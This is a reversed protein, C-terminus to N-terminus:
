CKIIFSESSQLEALTRAEYFPRCFVGRDEDYWLALIRTGVPLPEVM